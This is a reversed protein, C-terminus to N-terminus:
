ASSAPAMVPDKDILSVAEAFVDACPPAEPAQRCWAYLRPVLAVARDLEEDAGKQHGTMLRLDKTEEFRAIMAKCRQAMAREAASWAQPALRSISGLIDVAPFRGQDAVGRSLVIHGDLAGRVFDAIPDNHDDGDVLVSFLGTISGAGAVGVGARELLRPLDAFVSPPYGRAVPPEGATLAIERMAHACRTISDVILLVAEGRDRLYEAVCMATRPAARRMMPSEDGTAVVVVAKGLRDGLSDEIFERVERGREGVLAIVVSDFGEAKAMMALLTSKGVGSGAFVGMRQGRCLPTFMDVVRVGTVVKGGVRGRQLPHPPKGPGRPAAGAALFPNADIPRGLADIVRGKWSLDPSVFYEGGRRVKAGIGVQAESDFIKVMARASDVRVVEAMAERGGLDILVLDGLSVFPSLGAVEQWSPAVGKVVGSVEVIGVDRMATDITAALRTLGNM